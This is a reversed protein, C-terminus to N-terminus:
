VRARPGSEKQLSRKVPRPQRRRLKATAPADVGAKFLVHQMRSFDENARQYDDPRGIDLWYSESEYSVVHANHALLRQVLDPFDFKDFQPIYDRVEPSFMYIGMSVLYDLTPKEKYQTIRGDQATEIVGFQVAEKRRTTGITASARNDYHFRVFQEFDLATLLDGNMVLMPRDQRPM